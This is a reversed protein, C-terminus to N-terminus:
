FSHAGHAGISFELALFLAHTPYDRYFPRDLNYQVRLRSFETPWFNVSVSNRLRWTTWEPDTPDGGHHDEAIGSGYETRFAVATRSTFRWFLQAFGGHDVLVGGSVQRRRALWEAHLSVIQQSLEFGPLWAPSGPLRFSPLHRGVPRFKFYVDGGLIETRHDRGNFQPLGLRSIGAANSAREEVSDTDLVDNLTLTDFRGTGHPGMAGSIGVALSLSDSIPFFQKVSGVFQLLRPDSVWREKAGLFSPNGDAGLVTAVVEFYWPLPALWSAELAMGGNGHGGFVKGLMIPQDSFDWTHPHTSNFRSFRTLMQGMRVQLGFPLANTTAYAEEVEAGGPMFVINADARFFPDVAAGLAMELQQFNFGNHRPDHGGRQLPHEDSFAALAFDGILALDPNLNGMTPIALVSPGAQSPRWPAESSGTTFASGSQPGQKDLDRQLAQELERLDQASLAADSSGADPTHEAPVGGDAAAEAAAGGDPTQAGVPAAHVLMALCLPALSPFPTRACGQGPHVAREPSRRWDSKVM